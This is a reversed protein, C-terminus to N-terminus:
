INRFFCTFVGIKKDVIVISSLIAKPFTFIYHKNIFILYHSMGLGIKARTRASQELHQPKYLPTGGSDLINAGHNALTELCLGDGWRQMAFVNVYPNEVPFPPGVRRAM